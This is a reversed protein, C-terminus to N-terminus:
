DELRKEKDGKMFHAVPLCGTIRVQVSTAEGKYRQKSQAYAEGLPKKQIHKLGREKVEHAGHLGQLLPSREEKEQYVPCNNNKHRM